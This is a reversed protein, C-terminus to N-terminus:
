LFLGAKFKVISNLNLPYKFKGYAGVLNGVVKRLNPLNIEEPALAPLGSLSNKLFM